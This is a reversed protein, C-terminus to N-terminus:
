IGLLKIAATFIVGMLVGVGSAIGLITGISIQAKSIKKDLEKHEVTNCKVDDELDLIRRDTQKGFTAETTKFETLSTAQQALAQEVKIIRDHDTQWNGKLETVSSEVRNIDTKLNTYNHKVLSSLSKIENTTARNSTEIYTRIGEFATKFTEDMKNDESM